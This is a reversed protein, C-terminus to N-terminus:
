TEVGTVHKPNVEVHPHGCTCGLNVTPGQWEHDPDVYFRIETPNVPDDGRVHRVVGVLEFRTVGFKLQMGALSSPPDNAKMWEARIRSGKTINVTVESMTGEAWCDEPVREGSVRAFAWADAESDFEKAARADRTCRAENDLYGIGEPEGRNAIYRCRVVFSVLGGRHDEPPEPVVGHQTGADGLRLVFM